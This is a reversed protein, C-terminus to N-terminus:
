IWQSKNDTGADSVLGRDEGKMQFVVLGSFAVYTLELFM